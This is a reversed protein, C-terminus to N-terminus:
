HKFHRIGTFYMAMGHDDCYVISDNDKVSGGPQVIYRIGANYAIEVSDAFPFFADSALVSSDLDFGMRKAKEIAQNLADVRSTQGLGAGIMQQNKVIAIANSKLHKVCKLSFILDDSQSAPITAKTVQQLSEDEAKHNDMSQSLHGGLIYKRQEPSVEFTSLHLIIRNKKKSLKEIVGEGFSPAILVEYFIEDIADATEGDIMKNSIIIGGFASTPDCALAADWANKVSDRTAVGCPNTHKIIAFTPDNSKFESILAIAGDIDVLNNYSIEKGSIQRFIDDLNGIFSAKQHPNEGYRLHKAQGVKEAFYYSIATDYHATVMFSEYALQIRQEISTSGNNEKLWGAVIPYQSQKSIVAVSAHNKSAARLLSVGGIDIKEIILADDSTQKLTEEFPYLDVVVLDIQPLNHTKLQGLHDDNRRALIGAFVAPHLTKVRGDLMTPFGTLDEVLTADIGLNKIFDYTGGTSYIKVQHNHLEKVLIDLGSKDFVSILASTIPINSM